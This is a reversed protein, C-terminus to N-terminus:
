PADLAARIVAEADNEQWRKLLEDDTFGAIRSM